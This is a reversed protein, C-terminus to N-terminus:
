RTSEDDVAPEPRAFKEIPFSKPGRIALVLQVLALIGALAAILLENQVLFLVGLAALIAVMVWLWGLMVRRQTDPDAKSLSWM